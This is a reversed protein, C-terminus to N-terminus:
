LPEQFGQSYGNPLWEHMSTEMMLRESFNRESQPKSKLYHFYYIYNWVNHHVAIHTRFNLNASANFITRSLGCVLCNLSLSEKRQSKRRSLKSYSDVIIVIIVASFIQYAIILYIDGFFSYINLKPPIGLIAQQQYIYGPFGGVVRLSLDFV